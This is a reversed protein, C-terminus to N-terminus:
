SEDVQLAFNDQPEVFVFEVPVLHHQHQEALAVADGDVLGFSRDAMDTM